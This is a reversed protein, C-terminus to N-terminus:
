RSIKLGSIKLVNYTQQQKLIVIIIIITKNKCYYCM